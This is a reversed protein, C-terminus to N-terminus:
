PSRGMSSCSCDRSERCEEGFRIDPIKCGLRAREQVGDPEFELPIIHRCIVARCLTIVRTIAGVGITGITTGVDVVIAVGFNFTTVINVIIVFDGGSVRATHPGVVTIEVAAIARRIAMSRSRDRLNAACTTLVSSEIIMIVIAGIGEIFSIATAVKTVSVISYTVRVTCIVFISGIVVVPVACIVMIGSGAVEM